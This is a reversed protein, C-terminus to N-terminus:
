AAPGEGRSEQSSSDVKTVRVKKIRRGMVTLVRMVLGNVRVEDGVSPMRGLSNFIFGGVSDFDEKEIRLDFMENLADIGVRADVIAETPTVLTVEQERIDFEDEIEGVIEEVLDEITVLGATGGYEDVVIAISLRQQRMEALLEDVKKSEPVFHAPRALEAITAPRTGRALHALVEKGYVVGVVNDITNEFVPLRSYGKEVMMRTIEDFGDEVDVALMDIRPVMVERVTTQEMEMIGRIMQREEEAIGHAGEEAEVLRVLEEAETAEEPHRRRWWGLVLAVPLDLLRAPAGFVLRVVEVFPQLLRQWREPSQSVLLRPLSQLLMLVALTALAAVAVAGWSHGTDELVLTVTIATIGILALNRALALASLTAQREQTFRRLAEMRSTPPEGLARARVGAIVGAEAAVVFVFVIVALALLFGGAWSESDV